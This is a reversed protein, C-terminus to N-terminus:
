ASIHRRKAGRLILKPSTEKAGAERVLKLVQANFDCLHLRTKADEDRNEVPLSLLRQFLFLSPIATGCGLKEDPRAPFLKGNLTLCGRVIASNSAYIPM